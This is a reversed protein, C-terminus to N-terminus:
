FILPISKFNRTYHVLGEGDQMKPGDNEGRETV